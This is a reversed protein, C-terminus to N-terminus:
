RKVSRESTPLSVLASTALKRGTILDGIRLPTRLHQPLLSVGRWTRLIGESLVATPVGAAEADFLERAVGAGVTRDESPFAVVADVRFVLNPWEALWQATSSFATAPDILGADPLLTQIARFRRRAHASGYATVPHAVYVLPRGM